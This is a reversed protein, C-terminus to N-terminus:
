FPFGIKLAMPEPANLSSDTLLQADFRPPFPQQHRGFLSTGCYLQDIAINVDSFRVHALTPKFFSMTPQLTQHGSRRHHSYHRFISFSFSLWSESTMASNARVFDFFWQDILTILVNHGSQLLRQGFPLPQNTSTM